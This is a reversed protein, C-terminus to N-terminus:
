PIPELIKIYTTAALFATDGVIQLMESEVDQNVYYKVTIPYEIGPVSTDVDELGYIFGSIGDVAVVQVIGNNAFTLTPQITLENINQNQYLFLKDDDSDYQNGEITFAVIPNAVLSAENLYHANKTTLMVAGILLDNADYINCVVIEGETLNASTYCSNCRKVNPFAPSSETMPVATATLTNDEAFTLSIIEQIGSSNTRILQYKAANVGFMAFKNDIVLKTTAVQQGNVTITVPTYYLMFIENGYSLVRDSTSDVAIFSTPVLTSKYTVPDVAVVTYLQCVPLTATPIIKVVQSGVAPVIKGAALSPDNGDVNPDYIENFGYVGAAREGFLIISQDRSDDGM